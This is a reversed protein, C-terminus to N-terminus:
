CGSEPDAADTAEPRCERWGQLSYHVRPDDWEAAGPDWTFNLKNNALMDYAAIAGNVTADNQLDVVADPAYLLGNLTMQNLFTVEPRGESQGYTSAADWGVVFLQFNSPDGAPNMTFNNTVDVEGWGDGSPCGSGPRAADPADVFIRAQVGAALQITGGPSILRCINYDGSQTITLTGTVRLSRTAPDYTAGSAGVLWANQNVTATDGVPVPALTLPESHVVPSPPAQTYDIDGTATGSPGLDIGQVTLNGSASIQGNTGARGEFEADNNLRIRNLGVVGPIPLLSSITPLDLVRTQVRREVGEVIGQATICRETGTQTQSPVQGCADGAALQQSVWYKYSAGNGLDGTGATPCELGNAMGVLCDSAGLAPANNLRLNAVHLGAEAAALARKANRDGVADDAARMSTTAVAGAVITVLLLMGMVLPMAIGSQRRILKRM